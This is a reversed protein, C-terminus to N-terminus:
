ALKQRPIRIGGDCVIDGIEEDYSAGHALFWNRARLEWGERIWKPQVGKAILEAEKQDWKPMATEYGGPGLKHHYKKKDANKKNKASKKLADESEKYKKFAPWHNAQKALYGDFVPPTKKELYKAWLRKKWVRFLEAMKGLTWKKVKARLKATEAEDACEPLTFHAMLDNWLGEKYRETVFESELAGKRKNWDRVTIPIRDRVLVGCQKTFVEAAKQPAKPEGRPSIM